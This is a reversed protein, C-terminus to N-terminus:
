KLTALPLWPQSGYFFYYAFYSRKASMNSPM